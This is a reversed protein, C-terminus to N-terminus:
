QGSRRGQFVPVGPKELQSFKINRGRQSNKESDDKHNGRRTGDRISIIRLTRNEALSSHVRFPSFCAIEDVEIMIKIVILELNIHKSSM